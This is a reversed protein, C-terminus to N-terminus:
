EEAERRERRKRLWEQLSAKAEEAALGVLWLLARWALAERQEHNPYPHESM